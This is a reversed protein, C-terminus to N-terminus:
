FSANWDVGTSKVEIKRLLEGQANRSELDYGPHNHALETVFRGATREFAIVASIGAKDIRSRSEAMGQSEPTSESETGRVVRIRTQLHGTRPTRDAQEPAAPQEDEESSTESRTEATRTSPKKVGESKTDADREIQGLPSEGNASQIQQSAAAPVV